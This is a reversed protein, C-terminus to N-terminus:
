GKYQFLYAFAVRTYAIGQGSNRIAASTALEPRKPQLYDSLDDTRLHYRDRTHTVVATLRLDAELAALSADGHSSNALLWGGARLHRRCADWVFGAFLSILLDVSGDVVPLDDTYDLPLFRIAPAQLYRTRGTLEKLPGSRDAFYKAARRDNDVYTVVPIATSPSLDVYCGPYLAENIAFQETVEGFLESRDGIAKRYEVWSVNQTSMLVDLGSGSGRIGHIM